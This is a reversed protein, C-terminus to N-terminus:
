TVYVMAKIPLMFDRFIESNDSLSSVIGHLCRPKNEVKRYLHDHVFNLLLERLHCCASDVDSNISQPTKKEQSIKQLHTSSFFMLYNVSVKTEAGYM